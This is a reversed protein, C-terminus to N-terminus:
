APKTEFDTLLIFSLLSSLFTERLADYSNAVTTIYLVSFPNELCVVLQSTELPQELSFLRKTCALIINSM